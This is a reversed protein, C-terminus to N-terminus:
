AGHARRFRRLIRAREAAPLLGSFPSVQRMERAHPHPDLLNSVLRPPPLELWERWCQLLETAHPHAAGLRALSRRARDIVTEPDRELLDAIARHFALSRRDERTMRAVFSVVPEMGVSAALGEVTRLTPSKAGSEYAAIASQSTGAAAALERQTLGTRSRLDRIPNM